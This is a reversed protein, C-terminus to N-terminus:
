GSILNALEPVAGLAKQVLEAGAKSKIFEFSMKVFPGLQDTSLGSSALAALGSAAGGGGVAGALMGGIAGLGGGEGGGGSALESLGPVAGALASFDGGEMQSSLLGAVGQTASTAGDESVGLQSVAMQIFENMM